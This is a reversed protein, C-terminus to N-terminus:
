NMLWSLRMEQGIEDCEAKTLSPVSDFREVNVLWSCCLQLVRARKDEPLLTLAEVADVCEWWWIMRRDGAGRPRMTDMMGVHARPLHEFGLRAVYDISALLMTLPKIDAVSTVGITRRLGVLFAISPSDNSEHLDHLIRNLIWIIGMRARAQRADESSIRDCLEVDGRSPPSPADLPFIQQCGLVFQAFFELAEQDSSDTATNKLSLIRSAGMRAQREQFTLLADLFSDIATNLKDLTEFAGPGAGMYLLVSLTTIPVSVQHNHSEHLLRKVATLHKQSQATSGIRDETVAALTIHALVDYEYPSRALLERMSCYLKARRSLIAHSKTAADRGM